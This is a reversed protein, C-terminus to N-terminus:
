RTWMKKGKETGEFKPCLFIHKKDQIEEENSALM